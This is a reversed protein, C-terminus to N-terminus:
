NSPRLVVANITGHRSRVRVTRGGARVAIQTSIGGDLNLASEAETQAALFDAFAWLPLGRGATSDLRSGDDTRKVSANAALVVAWLHTRGVVIASRASLRDDGRSRVLSRGGDMLRDVSQLAQPAGARWADRHVVRPGADSWEFVGSGGRPRLPAAEVGGSVVLGMPAGREYFAGNVAIWPGDDAPLLTDFPAVDEAPMVEARGPLAVRALWAQGSSEGFRWTRRELVVGDADLLIRSDVVVAREPEIPAPRSPAPDPSCALLALLGLPTM